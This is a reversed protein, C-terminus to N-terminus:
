VYLTSGAVACVREVSLSQELPTKDKGRTPTFVINFTNQAQLKAPLTFMEGAKVLKDSGIVVENPRVSFQGDYNARAQVIYQVTTSKSGSAVQM